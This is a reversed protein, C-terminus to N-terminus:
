ETCLRKYDIKYKEMLSKVYDGVNPDTTLSCIFLRLKGVDITAYRALKAECDSLKKMLTDRSKELEGIRARLRNIEADRERLEEANESRAEELERRCRDLDEKCVEYGKSIISVADVLKAIDLGTLAEISRVMAISALAKKVINSIRTREGEDLGMWISYAEEDVDLCLQKSGAAM